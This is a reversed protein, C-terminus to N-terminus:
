QSSPGEDRQFVVKPRLVGLMVLMLRIFKKKTKEERTISESLEMLFKHEETDELLKFVEEYKKDKELLEIRKANASRARQMIISYIYEFTRREGVEKVVDQDQLSKLYNREILARAFSNLEWVLIDLLSVENRKEKSFPILGLGYYLGMYDFFHEDEVIAKPFLAETNRHYYADTVCGKRREQLAHRIKIEYNKEPRLDSQSGLSKPDELMCPLVTENVIAESVDRLAFPCYAGANIAVRLFISELLQFDITERKQKLFYLVKAFDHRAAQRSKEQEQAYKGGRGNLTAICANLQAFVWDRLFIEVPKKSKDALEKVKDAITTGGKANQALLILFNSDREGELKRLIALYNHQWFGEELFRNFIGSFEDFNYDKPLLGDAIVLKSCHAPAIEFDAEQLSLLWRIEPVDMEKREVLPSEYAELPKGGFPLLCRMLRDVKHQLFINLSPSYTLLTNVALSKMLSSSGQLIIAIASLAPFYVRVFSSIREPVLGLKDIERYAITAIMAGGFAYSGFYCLAIAEVVLGIRIISGAHSSFFHLVRVTRLSFYSSEGTTSAWAAVLSLPLFFLFTKSLFFQIPGLVQPFFVRKAIEDIVTCLTNLELFQFISALYYNKGQIIANEEDNVGVFSYGYGFGLSGDIVRSGLM